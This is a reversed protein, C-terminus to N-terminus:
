SGCPFQYSVGCQGAPVFSGRVCFTARFDEVGDSPAPASCRLLLNSLATFNFCLDLNSGRFM